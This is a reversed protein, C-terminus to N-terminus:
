FHSILSVMKAIKPSHNASERFYSRVRNKLVIAKGVYIIHGQSDYMLYVGPNEPLKKLEERINFKESNEDKKSMKKEM